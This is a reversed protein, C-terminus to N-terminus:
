TSWFAIAIGLIGGIASLLLSETLWQRVLRGPSAGLALRAGIERIRATARVLLLNALNACTIVLVVAVLPGISATARWSPRLVVSQRDSDGSTMLLRYHSVVSWFLFPLLYTAMWARAIAQLFGIHGGAM